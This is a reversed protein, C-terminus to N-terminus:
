LRTRLQGDPCESDQDQSLGAPVGEIEMISKEVINGTIVKTELVYGLLLSKDCVINILRPVGESYSYIEDIADKTFSISNNNGAVTLRHDIYQETEERDLPLIHYRIGIRQRLQKLNPSNLKDRLQPQGVLVIQFLKEKETELNSLMRIQELLSARLNQAEDIILVVNCGLSFQEILFKNLESLLTGKDRKAPRIGFEEVIAQLFQLASLNSNLIFATKTEKDLQNLFARCLTTKGTGIEGTIELFGKREQIGYILYSFAEKHKKSYFLFHPDPTVNFPKERLGFFKTYM